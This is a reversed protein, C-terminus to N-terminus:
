LEDRTAIALMTEEWWCCEQWCCRGWVCPAGQLVCLAADRRSWQVFRRTAEAPVQAVCGCHVCCRRVAPPQRVRVLHLRSHANGGGCGIERPLVAPSSVLRGGYLCALWYHRRSKGVGQQALKEQSRRARQGRPRIFFGCVAFREPRGEEQQVVIM